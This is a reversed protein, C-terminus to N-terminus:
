IDIEIGIFEPDGAVRHRFFLDLIGGLVAVTERLIDTNDVDFKRELPLDGASLDLDTEVAGIIGALEHDM